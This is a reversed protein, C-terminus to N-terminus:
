SFVYKECAFLPNQQKSYKQFSLFTLKMLLTKSGVQKPTAGASPVKKRFGAGAGSSM